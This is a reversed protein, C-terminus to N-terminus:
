VKRTALLLRAAAGRSSFISVHVSTVGLFRYDTACLYHVDFYVYAVSTILLIERDYNM